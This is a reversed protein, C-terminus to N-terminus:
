KQKGECSSVAKVLYLESRLFIFDRDYNRLFFKSQVILTIKIANILKFSITLYAATYM